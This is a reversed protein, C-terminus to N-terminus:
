GRYRKQKEIEWAQNSQLLSLKDQALQNEINQQRENSKLQRAQSILEPISSIVSTLPNEQVVVNTAM